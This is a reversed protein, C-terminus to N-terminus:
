WLMGNIQSHHCIYHWVPEQSNLLSSLFMCCLMLMEISWNWLTRINWKCHKYDVIYDLLCHSLYYSTPCMLWSLFVQGSPPLFAAIIYFLVQLLKEVSDQDLFQSARAREKTLCLATQWLTEYVCYQFMLLHIKKMVNPSHLFNVEQHYVTFSYCMLWQSALQSYYSAADELVAKEFNEYYCKNGLGIDVFFTVVGQLLERNLMEEDRDKRIQLGFCSSILKGTRIRIVYNSVLYTRLITSKLWNKLWKM